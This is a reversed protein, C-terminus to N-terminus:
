ENNNDKVDLIDPQPEKEELDKVEHNKLTATEMRGNQKDAFNSKVGPIEEYEVYEQDESFTEPDIPNQPEDVHQPIREKQEPSAM